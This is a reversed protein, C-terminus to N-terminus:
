DSRRGAAARRLHERLEDLSLCVGPSRHVMRHCNACLVALDTAPNTEREGAESLPVMHHVEAFGAGLDGYAAGFDFGCAQCACGHLRLADARAAPDRERRVSAYVRERGETRLDLTRPPAEGAEADPAILRLVMAELENDSRDVWAAHLSQFAGALAVPRGDPGKWGERGNPFAADFTDRANKLSNGFSKPTRGDGLADFFLGYAEGWGNVGLATPPMVGRGDGSVGCRSLYYAVLLMEPSRSFLPGRKREAM